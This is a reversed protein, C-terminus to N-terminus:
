ISKKEDLAKKLSNIIYEYFSTVEKYEVGNSVKELDRYLSTYGYETETEFFKEDKLIEFTRMILKQVNATKEKQIGLFSELDKIQADKENIIEKSKALEKKTAELLSKYEEALNKYYTDEM